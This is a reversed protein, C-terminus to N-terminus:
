RRPHEVAATQVAEAARADGGAAGCCMGSLPSREPTRWAMAPRAPRPLRALALGASRGRAAGAGHVRAMGAHGHAM